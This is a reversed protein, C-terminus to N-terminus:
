EYEEKYGVKKRVRSDNRNGSGVQILTYQRGRQVVLTPSVGECGEVM